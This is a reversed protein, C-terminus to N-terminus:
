WLCIPSCNVEQYNSVDEDQQKKEIDPIFAGCLSLASCYVKLCTEMMLFEQKDDGEKVTQGLVSTASEYADSSVKPNLIKLHVM